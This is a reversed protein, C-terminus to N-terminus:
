AEDGTSTKSRITDIAANMADVILPTAADKGILTSLEESIQGAREMRHTIFQHRATGASLAHLASHAAYYQSEIGEVMAAVDSRQPPRTSM